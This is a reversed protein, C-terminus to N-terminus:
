YDYFASIQRAIPLERVTVGAASIGLNTPCIPFNIITLKCFVGKSLYAKKLTFARQSSKM